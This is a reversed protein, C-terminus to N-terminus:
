IRRLYEWIAVMGYTDRQCYALMAQRIAAEDEPSFQGQQLQYWTLMAQQGDQITLNDYDLEPCLAPLIAKLSASGHFAPHVYWGSSFPQMLDQIRRNIALLDAALEPCHQALSQNRSKEFSQYWVLVSGESGIHQLLDAALLPEPDERSTSLFAHHEPEAEPSTLKYLSYQFIIQEYPHYGPFLPLAPGFTEYDLFYLPFSLKSLWRRIAAKDVLPQGSQVAQIHQKQKANLPFDAPISRIDLIGQNRLDLAKKGIRPLDYIPHEPLNPHCLSPCPCTKPSRCAYEPPPTVTQMVQRAAERLTLVDERLERVKNTIDEITFLQTLDLEEELIYASNIHLVFVSRIDFKAELLLTQFALDYEHEAKVRSSSKIEYLDYSNAARDHVIGDARVEYRGDNYAFQWLLQAQDYHTAIHEQLYQQALAEVQQGQERLHQDLLTPSSEELADHAKAWLHMPADLFLLFDSKTLM